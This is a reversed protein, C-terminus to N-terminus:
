APATSATRASGGQTRGEGACQADKHPSHTPQRGGGQMRGQAWVADDPRDAAGGVRLKKEGADRSDRGRRSRVPLLTDNVASFMASHHHKTSNGNNRPVIRFSITGTSAFRTTPSVIAAAMLIPSSATTFSESPPPRHQEVRFRVACHLLERKPGARDKDEHSSFAANRYESAAACAANCSKRARPKHRPTRLRREKNASTVRRMGKGLPSIATYNRNERFPRLACRNGKLPFAPQGEKGIGNGCHSIASRNRARKRM